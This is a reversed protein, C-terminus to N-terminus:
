EEKLISHDAPFDTGPQFREEAPVEGRVAAPVGFVIAFPPIDKAVLASAGVLAERGVTVGPLLVVGAGLRAGFKVIPGAEVRDDVIATRRHTIRRANSTTIGPGFFVYDGIAMCATLHCQAHITTYDGITTYGECWCLSGISTHSGVRTQERLMVGHNLLAHDGIVCGRYIQCGPRIRVDDGITTAEPVDHRAHTLSGYGIITNDEIVCRAGITVGPHIRVNRGIRTGAGIVADGAIMCLDDIQVDPFQPWNRM